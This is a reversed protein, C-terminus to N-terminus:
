TAHENHAVSIEKAGSSDIAEADDFAKSSGKKLMDRLQEAVKAGDSLDGHLLREKSRAEKDM